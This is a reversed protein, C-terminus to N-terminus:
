GIQLGVALGTVFTIAGAAFGVLAMRAAGYVTGTGSAWGLGGGVVILATASCAITAVLTAGGEGGLIFPVLPVIAGVAFAIFSSIMAAIPSGGLDDPDIGLEERVHVDLAVDPDSM